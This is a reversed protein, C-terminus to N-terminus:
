SELFVYRGIDEPSPFRSARVTDITAAVEEDVERRLDAAAECDLVGRAHLWSRFRGIPDRARWGAIEDLPRVDTHTGQINDDPGVHGRIRYTMCELFVPGLGARAHGVADRAAEYVVLVDNGDVAHAPVGFPRASECIAPNNRCEAIALHTSYLNNECVFLVPLKRLAALNLSEYLTGEGAAGDGFFSVAVAGDNRIRSALASGVALSITGGVIPASGLFGKRPNCLHMSGGRGRCCGMERCFIEAIMGAVDGTKALYHGHSRHNGFVVDREGLAAIVGTAVAEQGTYLHVPCRIEGSIIFEVLREECTRILLMTRYLSLLFEASYTRSDATM